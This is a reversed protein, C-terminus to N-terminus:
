LANNQGQMACPIWACRGPPGGPATSVCCHPAPAPQLPWLVAESATFPTGLQPQSVRQTSPPHRLQSLVLSGRAEDWCRAAQPLADAPPLGQLLALHSGLWCRLSAQAGARALLVAAPPPLLALLVPALQLLLLAHLALRSELLM